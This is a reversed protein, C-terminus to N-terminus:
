EGIFSWVNTNMDRKYKGLKFSRTQLVVQMAEQTELYLRRCVEIEANDCECFDSPSGGTLINYVEFLTNTGGNIFKEHKNVSIWDVRHKRRNEGAWQLNLKELLKLHEEKLEFIM